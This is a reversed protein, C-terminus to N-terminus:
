LVMIKVVYGDERYSFVVDCGNWLIFDIGVESGVIGLVYLGM